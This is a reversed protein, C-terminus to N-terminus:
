GAQTITTIIGGVVTITGNTTPGIGITYTGDAVPVIASNALVGTLTTPYAVGTGDRLAGDVWGAVPVPIQTTTGPTGGGTGGVAWQGTLSTSNDAYNPLVFSFSSAGKGLMWKGMWYILWGNANAYSAAGRCLGAYNYTGNCLTADGEYCTGAFGTATVHYALLTAATVTLNGFSDVVGSAPITAVLPTASAATLYGADNSLQSVATPITGTLYPVDNIM